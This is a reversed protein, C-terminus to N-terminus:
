YVIGNWDVLKINLDNIKQKTSEQTFYKLDEERWRSAWYEFGETMAKMEENDYATHILLVNLGPKVKQLYKDYMEYMGVKDYLNEDAILLNDVLGIKSINLGSLYKKSDIKKFYQKTLMGTIGYEEALSLYLVILEPSGRYLCSMHADLHSPRLGKELVYEIQARIEIEIEDIDANELFEGCTPYMFGDKDLLSSILSDPSVGGWRYNTWESTFTLHIGFDLDDNEKWLNLADDRWSCPVMLSASTVVGERMANITALNHSRSLGFDDSHIILNKEGGFNSSCSIFQLLGAAFVIRIFPIVNQFSTRKSM